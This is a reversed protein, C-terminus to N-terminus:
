KTFGWGLYHIQKTVAKVELNKIYPSYRDKISDISNFWRVHGPDNFSPVSFIILKNSKLKSLIKTDENIHELFEHTVYCDVDDKGYDYKLADTQEFIENGVKNKKSYEIAYESFDIGKYKINNIQALQGFQGMGSGIDLISTIKNKILLPLSQEWIITWSNMENWPKHYYSVGEFVRDYYLSDQEKGM